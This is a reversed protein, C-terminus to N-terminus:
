KNNIKTVNAKYVLVNNYSITVNAKNKSKINYETLFYENCERIGYFRLRKLLIDNKSSVCSINKAKLDEALEKVIYMRYAFHKKPNEIFHYLEKNFLVIISNLFLFIISFVFLRLYNKRFIKLRIRYTHIFTQFVLPLSLMIYPAFQEIAIKQRLSLVLSLVLISFSIYWSIDNSKTFFKKYLVYFIYIFVIPSFIAFYVGLSDLLHGRPFGGINTGYIYYSIFFCLFNIVLFLKNKIKYAFFLLAFFLYIFGADLFSYIFLLVYSYEIRFKDYVYVFLFLGFIVLGASNIQLASSIIGPLLIFIIILWVKDKIDKLYKNSILYLLGVSLFHFIMMPLRLAFDNHGFIKLSFNVILQLFSFDGYLIDAEYSSISLESTQFLLILADIGLILFLIYRYNM